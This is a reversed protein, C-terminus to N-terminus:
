PHVQLSSLTETLWQWNEPDNIAVYSSKKISGGRGDPIVDGGHTVGALAWTGPLKIFLPGGFDGSGSASGIGSELGGLEGYFLILGDEVNAVTNEGSRKIGIGSERYHRDRFNGFCNENVYTQFTTGEEVLEQGLREKTCDKPCEYSTPQSPSPVFTRISSYNYTGTSNDHIGRLVTCLQNQADKKPPVSCYTDYNEIVNNGWGVIKLTENVM